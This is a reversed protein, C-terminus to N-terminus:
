ERINRSKSRWELVIIILNWFSSSNMLFGTRGSQYENVTMSVCKPRFDCFRFGAPMFASSLMKGSIMYGYKVYPQHSVLAFRNIYVSITYSISSM